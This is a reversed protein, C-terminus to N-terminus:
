WSARFGQSRVADLAEETASTAILEHMRQFTRYATSLHGLHYHTWGELMRLDRSPATLMRRRELLALTKRYLKQNFTRFAERELLEIELENAREPSFPVTQIMERARDDAGLALSTRALAYRAEQREDRSSSSSHLIREFVLNAETPRQLQLYAWGRTLMLAPAESQETLVLATAPDEQALAESAIRSRAERALEDITSLNRALEQLRELDEPREATLAFGEAASKSVKWQLSREFWDRAESGDGEEFLLWGAKAAAESDALRVIIPAAEAVDEASAKESFLRQIEPLTRGTKGANEGLSEALDVDIADIVKALGQKQDHPLLENAKQATALRHKEDECEELIDSYVSLALDAKGLRAHAEAFHWRLDINGCSLLIQHETAVDIVEQWHERAVSNEVASRMEATQKLEVLRAPPTWEPYDGRLRDIEQDLRELDGAEYLAWLPGENVLSPPAFLDDPPVWGPHLEQLRAIEAEVANREGQSAFYRLASEDVEVPQKSANKIRVEVGDVLSRAASAASQASAGNSLGFVMIFSFTAFRLGLESINMM